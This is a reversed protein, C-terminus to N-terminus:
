CRFCCLFLVIIKAIVFLHTVPVYFRYATYVPSVSGDFPYRLCILSGM